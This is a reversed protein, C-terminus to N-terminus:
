KGGVNIKNLERALRLSRCALGSSFQGVSFNYRFSIQKFCLYVKPSPDRASISCFNQASRRTTAALFNTKVEIFRAFTFRLHALQLCLLKTPKNFSKPRARTSALQLHKNSSSLNASRVGLLWAASTMWDSQIFIGVYDELKLVRSLGLRSRDERKM